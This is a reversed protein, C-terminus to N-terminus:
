DLNEVEWGKRDTSHQHSADMMRYLQRDSTAMSISHAPLVPLPTLGFLPIINNYNTDYNIYIIAATLSHGSTRYLSEVEFM